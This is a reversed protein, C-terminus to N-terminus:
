IGFFVDDLAGSAKQALRLMRRKKKPRGADEDPKAAISAARMGFFHLKKGNLLQNKKKKKKRHPLKARALLFFPSEANSKLAAYIITENAQASSKPM